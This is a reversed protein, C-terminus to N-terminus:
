RLLCIGEDSAPPRACFYGFCCDANSQCSARYRKCCQGANCVGQCCQSTTGCPEGLDRCQGVLTTTPSLECPCDVAVSADVTAQLCLLADTAGVVGELSLDCLCSPECSRAGVSADLIFLCDSAIPRTGSSLPQGCEGAMAVSAGFPAAVLMVSFLAGAAGVFSDALTVSV